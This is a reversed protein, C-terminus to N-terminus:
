YLDKIILKQWDNIRFELLDLLFEVRTSQAKRMVSNKHAHLAPRRIPLWDRLKKIRFYWQWAVTIEEYTLLLRLKACNVLWKGRAGRYLTGIFLAPIIDYTDKLAGGDGNPMIRMKCFRAHFIGLGNVVVRNRGLDRHRERAHNIKYETKWRRGPAYLVRRAITVRPAYAEWFGFPSADRGRVREIVRIYACEYPPTCTDGNASRRHVVPKTGARRYAGFSTQVQYRGRSRIVRKLASEERGSEEGAKAKGGGDERLRGSSIGRLIVRTREPENLENKEYVAPVAISARTPRPM